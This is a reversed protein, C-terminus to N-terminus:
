VGPRNGFQLAGFVDADRRKALIEPCQACAELEDCREAVVSAAHGSVEHLTDWGSQSLPSAPRRGSEIADGLQAHSCDARM